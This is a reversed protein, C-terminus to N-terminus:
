NQWSRVLAIEYPRLLDAADTEDLSGRDLLQTLQIRKALMAEPEMHNFGSAEFSTRIKQAACKASAEYTLIEGSLRKARCEHTVKTMEQLVPRLYEPVQPTDNSQQLPSIPRPAVQAAARQQASPGGSLAIAICRGPTLPGYYSEIVADVASDPLGAALLGGFGGEKKGSSRVEARVIGCPSLTGFELFCGLGLIGILYFGFKRM